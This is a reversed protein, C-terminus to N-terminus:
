YTENQLKISVCIYDYNNMIYEKKRLVAKSREYTKFTWINQFCRQYKENIITELAKTSSKCIVSTTDFRLGKLQM